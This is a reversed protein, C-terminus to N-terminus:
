ESVVERTIHQQLYTRYAACGEQRSYHNKFSAFKDTWWELTHGRALVFDNAAAFDTMNRVYDTGAQYSGKTPELSPRCTRCLLHM